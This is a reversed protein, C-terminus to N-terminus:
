PPKRTISVAGITILAKEAAAREAGADDATESGSQSEGDAKKSDPPTRLAAPTSDSLDGESPDARRFLSSVHDVTARDNKHYAGHRPNNPNRVIDQAENFASQDIIENM